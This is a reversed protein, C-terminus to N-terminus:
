WPTDGCWDCPTQGATYGSVCYYEIDFCHPPDLCVRKIHCDYRGPVGAQANDSSSLYFSTLFALFLIALALVTIKHRM